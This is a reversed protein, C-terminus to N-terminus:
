ALKNDSEAMWQLLANVVDTDYKNAKFRLADRPILGMTGKGEAVVIEERDYSRSYGLSRSEIGVGFTGERKARKLDIERTDSEIKGTVTLYISEDNGAFPHFLEIRGQQRLLTAIRTLRSQFTVQKLIAHFTRIAQHRAPAFLTRDESLSYFKGSALTFGVYSRKDMPIFNVSQSSSMGSVSVVETIPILQGEIVICKEYLRINDVEILVRESSLSTNTVVNAKAPEADILLGLLQRYEDADIEGSALRTKLISLPHREDNM